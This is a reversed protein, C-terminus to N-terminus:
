RNCFARTQIRFCAVPFQKKKLVHHTKLDPSVCRQWECEELQKNGTASESPAM